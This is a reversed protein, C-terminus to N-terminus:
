RGRPQLRPVTPGTRGASRCGAATRRPSAPGSELHQHGPVAHMESSCGPPGRRKGGAAHADGAECRSWAPRGGGLHHVRRYPHAAEEGGGARWPVPGGGADRRRSARLPRLDDPSAGGPGGAPQQPHQGDPQRHQRPRGVRAARRLLGREGGRQARGGRLAQHRRVAHGRRVRGPHRHHARPDGGRHRPPPRHQRLVGGARGQPVGPHRRRHGPLPEVRPLPPQPHGRRRREVQRGQLTEQIGALYGPPSGIHLPTSESECLTNFDTDFLGAGLDESERIISYFSMRYLVQGM